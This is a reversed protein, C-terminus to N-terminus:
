PHIVGSAFWARATAEAEVPLDDLFVVALGHQARSCSVYFLNRSRQSRDASDTGALMKSISYMNWLRDDIVVVVNEFEDGKVGHQTSFPTQEEIFRTVSIVEQYPLERLGNSFDARRQGREDLNTANRRRELEKLKGPMVLLHDDGMLDLVDGITGNERVTNLTRIAQRISRKHSHKTIHNRGEGLLSTVEAFNNKQYAACLTEIRTLYQIYPENRAMLDDPGYRSVRRYQELLNAYELTGAIGRHTLMLYKTNEQTWGRELLVTRAVELRQHGATTGSNLFLHVEGKQQKGVSKQILEPRMKNLVAVVPPSCRHNEHKTILKLKAHTVAGVGSPYIKQMSDGFLGVICAERGRGALHDLLLKLTKPSTDQYEDVFIVPFRSVIIRALKPHAEVLRLSLTIVEDHSIRGESLKRGRDSYRVAPPSILESLDEPNKLTENYAVIQQWLERQYPQIISWLFEHITGVTALPDASIRELIERKAVNTYTICAIRRGNAELQARHRGLLFQLAKVLTTTKGAGAGAEVVFSRRAELEQIVVELTDVRAM